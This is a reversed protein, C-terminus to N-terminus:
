LPAKVVPMAYPRVTDVLVPGGEISIRVETPDAASWVITDITRGTRGTRCSPRQEPAPTICLTLKQGARQKDKVTINAPGGVYLFGPDGGARSNVIKVSYRSTKAFEASKGRACLHSVEIWGRPTYGPKPAEVHAFRGSKTYRTVQVKEGKYVTGAVVVGPRKKLYATKVCVERDQHAAASFAPSTAAFAAPAAAGCGAVAAATAIAITRARTM